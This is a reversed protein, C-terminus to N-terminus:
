KTNKGGVQNENGEVTGHLNAILILNNYIESNQNDSKISIKESKSHFIQM